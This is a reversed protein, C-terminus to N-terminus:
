ITDLGTLDIEIVPDMDLAQAWFNCNFDIRQKKDISWVYNGYKYIMEDIVKKDFGLRQLVEELTIFGFAEIKDNCLNEVLRVYRYNLEQDNSYYEKNTKENFEAVIKM